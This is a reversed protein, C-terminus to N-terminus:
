LLKGDPAPTEDKAKAKAKPEAKPKEGPEPQEVISGDEILIGVPAGASTHTGVFECWLQYDEAKAMETLLRLSDEDLLSGDEIRLIRLTPNAAMAIAAAARLKGAKSGQAFPVGDLLVSAKGQEDVRFALNPIPMKAKALADGRAKERTAMADTYGQSEATLEKLRTELEGRRKQRDILALTTDADRLQQRLADADIKADLPPAKALTAADTEAQDDLAAADEDNKTARARLENAEDRLANARARRQDIGAQADRRRLDEHDIRQNTEAANAMADALAERDPVDAPVEEKPVADLQAKVNAADRNTDRRKAYDSADLEALEDLDVSLPVMGLLIEAQQEPKKSVFAFPDFGFSGLLDDLMKQPSPYRLGDANEVKITDTFEGGAKNTFTRTVILDGLDLRITAKEEGQRVPEVQAVSRGKIAIWIADLVTSKGQENRGGITVISGDPNINIARLRKLNEAQLSIVKM